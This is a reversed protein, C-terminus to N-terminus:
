LCFPFCAISLYFHASWVLIGAVLCLANLKWARRQVLNFVAWVMGGVVAYFYGARIPDLWRVLWWTGGQQAVNMRAPPMYDVFVSHGLLREFIAPLALPLDVFGVYFFALFCVIFLPGRSVLSERPKKRFLFYAALVSIGMMGFSFLGERVDM